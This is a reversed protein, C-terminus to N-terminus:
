DLIGPPLGTMRYTEMALEARLRENKLWQILAEKAIKNESLGRNKAVEQIQKKLSKPLLFTM